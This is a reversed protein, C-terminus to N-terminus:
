IHILSLGEDPVLGNGLNADRENYEEKQGLNVEGRDLVNLEDAGHYDKEGERDLSKGQENNERDEEVVSKRRERFSNCDKREQKTRIHGDESDSDTAQEKKVGDFGFRYSHELSKINACKRGVVERHCKVRPHYEINDQM